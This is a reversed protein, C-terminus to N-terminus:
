FVNMQSILQVELAVPHLILHNLLQHIQIQAILIFQLVELCSDSLKHAMLVNGDDCQKGKQYFKVLPTHEKKIDFAEIAYWEGNIRSEVWDGPNLYPETVYFREQMNTEDWQSCEITSTKEIVGFIGDKLVATVYKIYSNDELKICTDSKYVVPVVNDREKFNTTKRVAIYSSGFIFSPLITYETEKTLEAVNCSFKAYGYSFSVCSDKELITENLSCDKEKYSKIIPNNSDTCDVSYSSYSFGNSSDYCQGLDKIQHFSYGFSSDCTSSYTKVVFPGDESSTSDITGKDVLTLKLHLNLMQGNDYVSAQFCEGYKYFTSSYDVFGKEISGDTSNYNYAYGYSSTTVFSQGKQSNLEGDSECETADDYYKERIYAYEHKVRIIESQALVFLLLILLFKVQMDNQYVSFNKRFSKKSIGNSFISGFDECLFNELKM